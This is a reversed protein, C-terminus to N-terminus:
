KPMDRQFIQFGLGVTKQYPAHTVDPIEFGHRGICLDRKHTRQVKVAGFKNM